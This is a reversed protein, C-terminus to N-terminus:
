AETPETEGAAARAGAGLAAVNEQALPNALIWAKKLARSFRTPTAALRSALSHMLVSEAIESVQMKASDDTPKESTSDSEEEQEYKSGLEHKLGSVAAASLSESVVGAVLELDMIQGTSFSRAERYFFEMAGVIERNHFIPVIILSGIGELDCMAGLLPHRRADRLQLAGATRVCSQFFNAHLELGVVTAAVGTRVPYVVTNQQLFGVATGCCQTIEQTREAVLEMAAKLDLNQEKIRDRMETVASLAEGTNNFVRGGRSEKDTYRGSVFRASSDPRVPPLGSTGVAPKIEGLGPLTAQEDPRRNADSTSSSGPVGTVVSCPRLSLMRPSGSHFQVEIGFSRLADQHTELHVYLARAAKPWAWKRTDPMTQTAALLEAATGSWVGKRLAFWAALERDFADDFELLGVTSLQGGIEPM